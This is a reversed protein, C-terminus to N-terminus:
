SLSAILARQTNVAAAHGLHNTGTPVPKNWHESAYVFPKVPATKTPQVRTTQHTIMTIQTLFNHQGMFLKHQHQAHESQWVPQQLECCSALHKCCTPSSRLLLAMRISVSKGSSAPTKKKPTHTTKMNNETTSATRQQLQRGRKQQSEVM